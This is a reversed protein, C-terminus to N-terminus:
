SATATEDGAGVALRAETWLMHGPCHQRLRVEKRYREARLILVSAHQYVENSHQRVHDMDACERSVFVNGGESKIGIWSPIDFLGPQEALEYTRKRLANGTAKESKITRQLLSEYDPYLERVAIELAEDDTIPGSQNQIIEQVRFMLSQNTGM